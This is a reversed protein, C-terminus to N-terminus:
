GTDLSACRDTRSNQQATPRVCAPISEEYQGSVLGDRGNGSPRSRGFVLLMTATTHRADHLRAERVGADALLAKWEGYDVRPDIPKGNPQAFVWGGEQWVDGALQREADQAAQHELLGGILPPPLSVVRRGARTKPEVTVLGGGYRGPCEAGRKRGCPKGPDCGHQWTQRQLARRITATGTTYRQPCDIPGIAECPSDDPCGHFWAVKIDAWQLGIAEGQRLGLALAVAWRIGNRRTRAANLLAQADEVSLPEIEAEVSPPSKVVAIPNRTVRERRAAENM